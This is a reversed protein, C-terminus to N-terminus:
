YGDRINVTLRVQWETWQIVDDAATKSDIKAQFQRDNIFNTLCNVVEDVQPGMELVERPVKRPYQLESM